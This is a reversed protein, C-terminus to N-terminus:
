EGDDVGEPDLRQHGKRKNANLEDQVRMRNQAEALWTQKADWKGGAHSGGGNNSGGNHGELGLEDGLRRAVERWESGWSGIHQTFANKCVGDVHKPNAEIYHRVVDEPDHEDVLYYVATSRGGLKNAQPNATKLHFKGVLPREIGADGLPTRNDAGDTLLRYQEGTLPGHARLLRVGRTEARRIAGADPDAVRDRETSM